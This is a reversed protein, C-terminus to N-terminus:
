RKLFWLLLGVVAVAGFAYFAVKTTSATINSGDSVKTLGIERAAGIAELGLAAQSALSAETLQIAAGIAGFDTTTVTNGRGTVAPGGTAITASSGKAGIIRPANVPADAAIANNVNSVRSRTQSDSSFPGFARTIM